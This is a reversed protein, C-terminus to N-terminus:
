MYVSEVREGNVNSLTCNSKNFFFDIANRRMELWGWITYYDFGLFDSRMEWKLEM